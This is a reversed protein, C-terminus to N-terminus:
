KGFGPLTGRYEDWFMSRAIPERSSAPTPGFFICFVHGVPWYGLEGVEALPLHGVWRVTYGPQRLAEAVAEPTGGENVTVTVLREVSGRESVAVLRYTTTEIPVVVTDAPATVGQNDLYAASVGSLDWSLTAQQGKRIECPLCTFYHIVPM